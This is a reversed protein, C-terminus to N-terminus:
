RRLRSKLVVSQDFPLWRCYVLGATLDIDFVEGEIFLSTDHFEPGPGVISKLYASFTPGISVNGASNREHRNKKDSASSGNNNEGSKQWQYLQLICFMGVHHTVSIGTFYMVDGPTDSIHMYFVSCSPLTHCQYAQLICFMVVLNMVFMDSIHRYFVSCSSLTHWQYAQLICFM